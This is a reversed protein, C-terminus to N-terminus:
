HANVCRRSTVHVVTPDNPHLPVELQFWMVWLGQGHDNVWPTMITHPDSSLASRGFEKVSGGGTANADSAILVTKTPNAEGTYTITMMCDASVSVKLPGFPRWPTPTPARTPTVAPGENGSIFPTNSAQGTSASANPATSPSSLVPRTATSSGCGAVIVVVALAAIWRRVIM